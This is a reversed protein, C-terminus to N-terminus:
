AVLWLVRSHTKKEKFVTALRGFIRCFLEFGASFLFQNAPFFPPRVAALKPYFSCFVPRFVYKLFLMHKRM